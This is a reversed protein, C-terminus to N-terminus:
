SAVVRLAVFVFLALFATQAVMMLVPRAGLNMLERLQTKMGIAAIAIVLFLRSTSNAIDTVAHPLVVVSNLVVFAAFVAVFWPLLPPRSITNNAPAISNRRVIVTIVFIVPLLMAVRLLKVITATDGADKSITYGAGIVQAVDHITAGVFIGAEHESLGLAKTLIPYAIMAITSLATVGIVTFSTDRDRQLHNPLAAAIALAASAGCIAVAGSTLVGFATSTRSVRALLVGFGITAIVALVVVAAVGFGLVAIDSFAIRLGLLAVGCRLITSAAFQVGPATKPEQGLFNLAMGLLLAFLMASAGYHSSLFLAAIAVVVAIAFGPFRQTFVAQLRTISLASNM